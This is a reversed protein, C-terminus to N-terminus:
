INNPTPEPIPSVDGMVVTFFLIGIALIAGALLFAGSFTGTTAVIFGTAAPAAIGTISNVFNMIGGITGAGGKPAILSPLSWSAPAAAALGSLSLTIWTVAWYPDRTIGAGIVSLGTVMGAVIISKRVKTENWGRGVLHDILWGGVLLDSVTAFLWPIMTFTASTLLNMKMEQVLYGPLWFIFFAFAYGYCAFGISLGWVKRRKVLYRLLSTGNTSAVGEETAGGSAIYSREEDTLRADETPQRYVQRFVFFYALSLFGTAIFAGRWGFTVVLLAVTPIAVVNSFKAAADFIATAFSREARPFWYGIAKANAPFAPAEAIGLLLRAVFLTGFGIAASTVFSAAAWLVISITMVRRVGYRDLLMGVPIQLSGYTWGFAGLLLGITLADIGFDHQIAPAAVTLIVRDFYNVIVGIGLLGAITWRRRGVPKPPKLAAGSTVM